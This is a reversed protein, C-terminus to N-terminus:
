EPSAQSGTMERERACARASASALERERESVLRIPAFGPPSPFTLRSKWAADSACGIRSVIMTTGLECARML